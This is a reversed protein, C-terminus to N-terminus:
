VSNAGQVNSTNSSQGNAIWRDACIFSLVGEDGLLDLSREIFAVYLDARDFLSSYRRRYERQLEPAIQEIRIYPPNGVVFDFYSPLNALLFIQQRSLGVM